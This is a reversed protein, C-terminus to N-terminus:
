HNLILVALKSVGRYNAHPAESIRPSPVSMHRPLPRGVDDVAAAAAADDVRYPAVNVAPLV